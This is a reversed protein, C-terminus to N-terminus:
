SLGAEAAAREARQLRRLGPIGLILPTLIGFVLAILVGPDSAALASQADVQVAAFLYGQWQLGVMTATSLGWGVGTIVVLMGLNVWRVGPYVGGRSLLSPGHVRHRRLLTEAGFIGAWAAVPVALTTLADRFLVTVDSVSLLLLGVLAATMLVALTVGILRPVRVGAALVAFGASYLSVSSAALLGLAVAAILPAPYWAPLMSSLLDIPNSQLGDSLTANSAALVAGWSIPIVAPLTAGLVTLFAASSGTPGGRQYRAVDAGSNAWALGLVSFVVVAGSVLLVWDGDPVSLAVALDVSPATFVILGAVLVVSLASVGATVLAILRFGILAVTASFVLGVLAVALTITLRLPEGVLGAGVLVETVGIALMWLLAAAWAVRTVLALVAPIGNGITGFTARSVVMTPQNSRKGALTGVALPFISLAAGILVSLVAQRLSVGLGLIVAGLAVSVVSANVAFWVWFLQLSRGVRESAATAQLGTVEVWRAPNVALATSPDDATHGASHRGARRGAPTVATASVDAPPAPLFPAATPTPASEDAAAERDADADPDADADADAGADATAPSAAAFLSEDTITAAEHVAPAVDAEPPTYAGAALLKALSAPSSLSMPDGAVPQAPEVLPEVLAAAGPEILPQVQWAPATPEAHEAVVTLPVAVPLPMSVPATPASDASQKGPEVREGQESQETHDEQAAISPEHQVPSAVAAGPPVWRQFQQSLAGALADDDITVASPPPTVSPSIGADGTTFREDDVM